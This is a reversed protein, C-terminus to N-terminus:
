RCISKKTAQYEIEEPSPRLTDAIVFTKAVKEFRAASEAQHENQVAQAPEEQFKQAVIIRKLRGPPYNILASRNRLIESNIHYNKSYNQYCYESFYFV